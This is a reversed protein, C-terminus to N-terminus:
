RNQKVSSPRILVNWHLKDGSPKKFSGLSNSPLSQKDDHDSKPSKNPYQTEGIVESQKRKVNGNVEFKKEDTNACELNEVSSSNESFSVNANQNRSMTSESAPQRLRAEEENLKDVFPNFSQFSMRGKLAGPHPDGETIVVCRKIVTTSTGVSVNPTVEEEKKTKEERLAARQMFKLNKLTSSLERRAM